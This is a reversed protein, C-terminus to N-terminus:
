KAHEVGAANLQDVQVDVAGRKFIDEDLQGAFLRPISRRFSVIRRYCGTPAVRVALGRCCVAARPRPLFIMVKSSLDMFCEAFIRDARRIVRRSNTPRVSAVAPTIAPAGAIKRPCFRFLLSFMANMAHPPRALALRPSSVITGPAAPALPRLAFAWIGSAGCGSSFTVTSQSM